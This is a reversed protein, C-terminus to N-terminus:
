RKTEKMIELIAQRDSASLHAYEKTTDEGTLIKRFRRNVYEKVPEPMNNFSDTYILYSM